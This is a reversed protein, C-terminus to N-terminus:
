KTEGGAAQDADATSEPDPAGPTDSIEDAKILTLTNGDQSRQVTDVELNFEVGKADLFASVIDTMRRLKDAQIEQMKKQFESLEDNLEKQLENLRAKVKPTLPFTQGAPKAANIPVRKAALAPRTSPRNKM